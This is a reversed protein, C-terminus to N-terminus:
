PVLEVKDGPQPALHGAHELLRDLSYATTYSGFANSEAGDRTLRVLRWCAPNEACRRIRYRTM